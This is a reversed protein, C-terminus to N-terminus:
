SGETGIGPGEGGVEWTIPGWVFDFIQAPFETQPVATIIGDRWIYITYDVELTEPNYLQYAIANGDPSLAFRIMRLKPDDTLQVIAGNPQQVVYQMLRQDPQPVPIVKLSTEAHGPAYGVINAAEGTIIGLDLDILVWRASVVSGTYLVGLWSKGQYQILMEDEPALTGDKLTMLDVIAEFKMEGTVPDFLMYSKKFGNDLLENNFMVIGKDTWVGDFYTGIGWQRPLDSVLTRSTQTAKDYIMLRYTSDNVDQEAWAIQLGDPSWIAHARYLVKNPTNPNGFSADAPQDAIRYAEDSAETSIVWLNSPISGDGGGGSQSEMFDIAIQPWSNYAVENALPSLELDSNYGWQTKQRLTPGGTWEWLDGAKVLILPQAADQAGSAGVLSLLLLFNIFWRKIMM